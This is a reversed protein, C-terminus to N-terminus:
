PADAIPDAYLVYQSSSSFPRDLAMAITSTFPYPVDPRANKVQIIEHGVQSGFEDFFALAVGINRTEEGANLISGSITMRSFDVSAGPYLRLYNGFGYAYDIRAATTDTSHYAYASRSMFVDLGLPGFGRRRYSDLRDREARQGLRQARAEQMRALREAKEQEYRQRMQQLQAQRSQDQASALVERYQRFDDGLRENDQLFRRLENLERNADAAELRATALDRRMALIEENLRDIEELLMRVPDFPADAEAEAEAAGATAPEAAGEAPTMAEALKPDAPPGVPIIGPETPPTGTEAPPASGGAPPSTQGPPTQDPPAQGFAPGLGGICLAALCALPRSRKM